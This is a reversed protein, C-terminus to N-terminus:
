YTRGSLKERARIADSAFVKARSWATASSPEGGQQWGAPRSSGVDAAEMGGKESKAEFPFPQVLEVSDSWTGSFGTSLAHRGGEEAYASQRGYALADLALEDSDDAARGLRRKELASARWEAGGVVDPQGDGRV